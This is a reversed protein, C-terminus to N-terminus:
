SPPINQHQVTDNTMQEFKHDLFVCTLTTSPKAMSGRISLNVSIQTTYYLHFTTTHFSETIYYAYSIQTYLLQSKVKSKNRRLLFFSQSMSFTSQSSEKILYFLLSILTQITGTYINLHLICHDSGLGNLVQYKCFLYQLEFCLIFNSIPFILYLKSTIYSLILPMGVTTSTADM